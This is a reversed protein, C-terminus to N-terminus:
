AGRVDIRQAGEPAILRAIFRRSDSAEDRRREDQGLQDPPRVDMGNPRSRCEGAPASGLAQRTGYAFTTQDMKVSQERRGFM